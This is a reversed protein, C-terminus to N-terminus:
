QKNKLVGWFTKISKYEFYLCVLLIVSVFLVKLTIKLFLSDIIEFLFVMQSILLFLFSLGIMKGAHFRIQPELHISLGLAMLAIVLLSIFMAVGTGIIGLLPIFVLNCIVNALLATMSVYMVYKTHSFFLPQCFFYYLGRAVGGFCIFSIPYWAMEYSKSSMLWVAEPSFISIIFGIVCCLLVGVDAFIYMKEYGEKEGKAMLQFCWPSFASNISGTIVNMVSGFQSAVSYLGVSSAGAMNNLMLRDITNSWYSAINHPMLPLAYKLAGAGIRNEFRFCLYPSFSYFSYVFFLLSVVFNSLILSFVGLHLVTLCVVNLIVTIVFHAIANITHSLGDQLTKLWQQYFQFMPSLMAGILAFFFLPYFDVGEAIPTILYRHFIIILVGWFFSNILLLILISGWVKARFEQMESKFHFRTAAVPLSMLLMRSVFATIATVVNLKGYDEPTLYLTYVPLLLFGVGMQLFSAISYLATNSIIKPIRM